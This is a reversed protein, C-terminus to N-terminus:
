MANCEMGNFQSVVYTKDAFSMRQTGDPEVMRIYEGPVEEVISGDTKYHVKSGDFFAEIISGDPNQQTITGDPSKQLTHGDKNIQIELGDKYMIVTIGEKIYSNLMTGDNRTEFARGHFRDVVQSLRLGPRM